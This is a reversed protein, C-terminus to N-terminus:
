NSGPVREDKQRTTQMGLQAPSKGGPRHGKGNCHLNVRLNITKEPIGTCTPADQMQMQMQTQMQM